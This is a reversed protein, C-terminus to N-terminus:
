PLIFASPVIETVNKNEEIRSLKEEDTLVEHSDFLYENEALVFQKIESGLALKLDTIAVEVDNLALLYLTDNELESLAIKKLDRM